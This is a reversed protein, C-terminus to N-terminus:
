IPVQVPSRWQAQWEATPRMSKKAQLPGGTGQM